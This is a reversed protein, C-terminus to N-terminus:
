LGQLAFATIGLPIPVGAVKYFFIYLVVPIVFSNTIMLHLRKEGALLLGVFMAISSSVLFGAWELSLAYTGLLLVFMTIRKTADPHTNLTQQTKEENKSRFTVAIGIILLISAVIKPYYSPALAIFKVKKPADIGFPIFILLLALAVSVMLIGAWFDTRM